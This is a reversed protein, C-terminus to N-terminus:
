AAPPAAGPGAPPTWAAAAPPGSSAPVGDQPASDADDSNDPTETADDAGDSGAVGGGPADGVVPKADEPEPADAEAEAVVVADESDEAEAVVVTDESDEADDADNADNQGDEVSSESTSADVIGEDELDDAAEVDAVDGTGEQADASELRKDPAPTVEAEAEPATGPGREPIERKLAAASFRITAGSELDGNGSDPEPEPASPPTPM